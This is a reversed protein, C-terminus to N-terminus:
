LMGYNVTLFGAPHMAVAEPMVRAVEDAMVGVRRVDADDWLYRFAYVGFGRPDSGIRDIDTKLRRDSTQFGGRAWGGALAAPISFLGGLMAQYNANKNAFNSQVLGTYDVPTVGPTPTNQFQPTNPQTMGLMSTLETLPQNRERLGVDVATRYADLYMQDYARSREDTFGERARHYAESGPTLGRAVLNADLNEGRRQWEPDLFTRNIDTLHRAAGANAEWPTSLTNSVNTLQANAIDGFQGQANTLSEYLGQQEPSFAMTAEFRPTGDDWTGIQNYTLNGYPTNQNTAGLQYQTTATQTNM